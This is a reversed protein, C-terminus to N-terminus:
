DNGSCDCNSYGTLDVGTLRGYDDRSASVTFSTYGASAKKTFTKAGITSLAGAPGQPGRPGQSGTAGRAGTDGKAGKLNKFAFAFTRESSTGGLTVTVSPTGTNSDVTASASTITASTGSSGTAGTPGRPGTAGTDGKDGKEGKLGTFTFALTRSSATGGVDVSVNPTGTTNDVSASASAISDIAVNGSSDPTANNVTKVFTSDADSKTMYTTAIVSGNGDQIAKTATDATKASVIHGGATVGDCIHLKWNTKDIVVEGDEGVYNDVLNTTGRKLKITTM